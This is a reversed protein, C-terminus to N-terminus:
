NCRTCLGGGGNELHATVAVCPKGRAVIEHDDSFYVNHLQAHATILIAM